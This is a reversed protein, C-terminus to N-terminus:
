LLWGAIVAEQQARGASVAWAVCQRTEQAQSSLKLGSQGGIQLLSIALTGLM